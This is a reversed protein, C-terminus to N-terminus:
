AQYKGDATKVWGHKKALRGLVLPLSRPEADPIVKLIDATAFAIGKRNQAFEEIRHQLGDGPPVSPQTTNVTAVKPAKKGKKAKKKAGGKRPSTDQGLRSRLSEPYFEALAWGDKFRLVDGNSKMRNLCGTIVSEFNDSTSEVGGEKLATAIERITQKKKMASLYLKVAAPLSKGLFAGRPLEMPQSDGNGQPSYSIGADFTPMMAGSATVLSTIAADIAARKALLDNIMVAYDIAKTETSM